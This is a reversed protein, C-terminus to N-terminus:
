AVRRASIRSNIINVSGGSFAARVVLYVLTSVSVTVRVMPTTVQEQYGVSISSANLTSDLSSALSASTVSIGAQRFQCPGTVADFGVNGQVDWCGPTLLVSAANGYTNTSLSGGGGTASLLEGINGAAPAVGGVTGKAAVGGLADISLANVKSGSPGVKLVLTGDNGSELSSTDSAGGATIITQAM